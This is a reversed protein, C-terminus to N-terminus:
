FNLSLNRKQKKDCGLTSRRKVKYVARFYLISVIIHSSIHRLSDATGWDTDNPITIVHINLPLNLKELTLEVERKAIETVM